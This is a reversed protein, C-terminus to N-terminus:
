GSKSSLANVANNIRCTEELLDGNSIGMGDLARVLSFFSVKKESRLDREVNQFYQLVDIRNTDTWGASYDEVTLQKGLRLNIAKIADLIEIRTM